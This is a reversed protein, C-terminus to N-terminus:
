KSYKDMREYYKIFQEQSMGDPYRGERVASYVTQMMYNDYAKYAVVGIIVAVVLICAAIILRRKTILKKQM